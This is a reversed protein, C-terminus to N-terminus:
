ATEGIDRQMALTRHLGGGFGVHFRMDGRGRRRVPVRGILQVPLRRFANVDFRHVDGSVTGGDLSVPVRQVTEGALRREHPPRVRRHIDVLWPCDALVGPEGGGRIGVRKVATVQGGTLLAQRHSEVQGRVAAVVGVM